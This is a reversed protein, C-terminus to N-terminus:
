KAGLAAQFKDTIVSLGVHGIQRHGDGIGIFGLRRAIQYHLTGYLWDYDRISLYDCYPLDEQLLSNLLM